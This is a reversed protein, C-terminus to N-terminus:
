NRRETSFGLTLLGVPGSGNLTPGAIDQQAGEDGLRVTWTGQLLQQMWMLRGGFVLFNREGGSGWLYWRTDVRLGTGLFILSSSARSNDPISWASPVPLPSPEGDFKVQFNQAQLSAVPYASVRATRWLEPAVGLGIAGSSLDARAGPTQAATSDSSGVSEATLLLHLRGFSLEVEAGLLLQSRNTASYGRSAFERNLSDFSQRWFGARVGATLAFDPPTSPYLRSQARTAEPGKEPASWALASVLLASTALALTAVVRPM